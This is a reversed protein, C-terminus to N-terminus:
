NKVLAELYIKIDKYKNRIILSTIDLSFQVTKPSYLLDSELYHYSNHEHQSVIHHRKYKLPCSTALYVTTNSASHHCSNLNLLPLFHRWILFFPVLLIDIYLLQSPVVQPDGEKATTHSVIWWERRIVRNEKNCSLTGM